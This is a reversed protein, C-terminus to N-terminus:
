LQNTYLSRPYQSWSMVPMAHYVLLVHHRTSDLAVYSEGSITALHRLMFNQDGFLIRKRVVWFINCTRIYYSAWDVLWLLYSATKTDRGSFNGRSNRM